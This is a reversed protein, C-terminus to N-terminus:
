IDMDKISELKHMYAIGYNTIKYRITKDQETADIIKKDIMSDVLDICYKYNLNCRYVINTINLDTERITELINLVIEDKTRRKDKTINTDIPRNKHVKISIESDGNLFKITKLLDISYTSCYYKIKQDIIGSYLAIKKVTNNKYFNNVESLSKMKTNTNGSLNIM